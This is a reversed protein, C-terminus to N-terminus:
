AAGGIMTIRAAKASDTTETHGASLWRDVQNLDYLVSRIGPPVVYSPGKSLHRWKALVEPTTGVYDATLTPRAWRPAPGSRETTVIAIPNASGKRTTTDRLSM